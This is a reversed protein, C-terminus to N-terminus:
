QFGGLSMDSTTGAVHDIGGHAGVEERSKIATSSGSGNIPQSQSELKNM